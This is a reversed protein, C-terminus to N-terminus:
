LVLLLECQVWAISLVSVVEGDHRGAWSSAHVAGGGSRQRRVTALEHRAPPSAPASLGAHRLRPYPPGVDRPVCSSMPHHHAERARTRQSAVEVRTTQGLFLAATRDPCHRPMAQWSSIDLRRSTRLSILPGGVRRQLVVVLTRAVSNREPVLGEGGLVQAICM